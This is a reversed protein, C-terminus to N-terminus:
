VQMRMLEQYSEVLKNRVEVMLSFAVSSEQVAIMSQHLNTADGSLVRTKEIEASQMKSNVDSVARELLSSFSGHKPGQFSYVGPSSHGAAELKGAKDIAEAAQTVAAKLAEQDEIAKAFSTTTGVGPMIAGANEIGKNLAPPVRSLQISGIPLM